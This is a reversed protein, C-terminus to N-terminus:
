THGKTQLYDKLAEKWIRLPNLGCEILRVSTLASYPPRQARTQTKSTNIPEITAKIKAIELTTRAFEFWSCEGSNTIHFLGTIGQEVLERLKIALDATYTPSTIQDNVVQLTEGAKAKHIMMEPFTWGKRSTATGYLGATRVIIYRTNSQMVLQEGAWKSVGYVNQPHPLDNENHPHGRERIEGGFVYDTSLFV